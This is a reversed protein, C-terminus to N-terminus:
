TSHSFLPRTAPDAAAGSVLRTGSYFQFSGKCRIGQSCFAPLPFLPPIVIAFPAPTRVREDHESPRAERPRPRPPPSPDAGPDGGSAASAYQERQRTAPQGRAPRSPPSPGSEEESGARMRDIRQKLAKAADYDERRIADAKDAELQGLKSGVVTLRCRWSICRLKSLTRASPSINRRARTVPCSFTGSRIDNPLHSLVNSQGAKVGHELPLTLTAAGTCSDCHLRTCRDIALKLRKAEDYNEAAVAAAKEEQLRGVQMCVDMKSLRSCRPM